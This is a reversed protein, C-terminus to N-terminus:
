LDDITLDGIEADIIAMGFALTEDLADKDTEFFGNPCPAKIISFNLSVAGETGRSGTAMSMAEM